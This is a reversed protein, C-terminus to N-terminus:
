SNLTGCPPHATKNCSPTAFREFFVEKELAPKVYPKKTKVNNDKKDM